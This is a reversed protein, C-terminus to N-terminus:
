QFYFDFFLEFLVCDARIGNYFQLFCLEEVWMFVFGDCIAVDLGILNQNHVAFFVISGPANFIVISGCFCTTFTAVSEIDESYGAGALLDGVTINFALLFILAVM